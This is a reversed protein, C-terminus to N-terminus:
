YDLNHSNVIKMQYVAFVIIHKLQKEGVRMNKRKWLGEERGRMRRQGPEPLLVVPLAKNSRGRPRSRAWYKMKLFIGGIGPPPLHPVTELHVRLSSVLRYFLSGFHPWSLQQHEWKGRRELPLQPLNTELFHKSRWGELQEDQRNLRSKPVFASQMCWNTLQRGTHESWERGEKDVQQFLEFPSTSNTIFM